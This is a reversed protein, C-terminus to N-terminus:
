NTNMRYVSSVNSNHCIAFITTCIFAFKDSILIIRETKVECCVCVLTKNILLVKTNFIIFSRKNQQHTFNM